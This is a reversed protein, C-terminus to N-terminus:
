CDRESYKGLSNFCGNTAAKCVVEDAASSNPFNVGCVAGQVSVLEEFM